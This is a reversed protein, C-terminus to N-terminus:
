DEQDEADKEPSWEANYDDETESADELDEEEIIEASEIFIEFTEVKELVSTIKRDLTRLLSKIEKIERSVTDHNKNIDKSLSDEIKSVDKNLKFIEKYLDETSKQM